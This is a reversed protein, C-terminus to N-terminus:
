QPYWSLTVTIVESTIHDGSLSIAQFSQNPGCASYTEVSGWTIAGGGLTTATQVTSTACISYNGWRTTITPGTTYGGAPYTFTQAFSTGSVLSGNVDWNLTPLPGSDIPGAAPTPEPTPPTSAPARTPAPTPRPATAAPAAGAGAGGSSTPWSPSETRTPTPSAPTASPTPSHAAAIPATPRPKAPHATADFLVTEGVHGPTRALPPHVPGGCASLGIALGAAIIGLRVPSM